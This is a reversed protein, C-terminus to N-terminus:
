ASLFVTWEQPSAMPNWVIEGRKGAPITGVTPNGTNAGKVTIAGAGSAYMEHCWMVNTVPPMYMQANQASAASLVIMYPATNPVTYAGSITQTSYTMGFPGEWMSKRLRSNEIIEGQM